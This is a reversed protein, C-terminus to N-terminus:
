PHLFILGCSNHVMCVHGNFRNNGYPLLCLLHQFRLKLGTPLSLSKSIFSSFSSTSKNIECRPHCQKYKWIRQLTGLFRFCEFFSDKLLHPNTTHSTNQTSLWLLCNLFFHLLLIWPIFTKLCQQLHGGKYFSIMNKQTTLM